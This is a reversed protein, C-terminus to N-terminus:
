REPQDAARVWLSNRQLEAKELKLPVTIKVPLKGRRECIPPLANLLAPLAPELTSSSSPNGFNDAIPLETKLVKLPVTIKM